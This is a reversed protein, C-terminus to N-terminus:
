DSWKVLDGDKNEYYYGDQLKELKVGEPLKKRLSAIGTTPQTSGNTLGLNQSSILNDNRYNNLTVNPFKFSTTKSGPIGDTKSTGQMLADARPNGRRQEFSRVNDALKQMESQIQPIIERSITTSPNEKRYKELWQFSVDGNDLATSGKMKNKELWDVYNNWDQMQKQTLPENGGSTRYNM